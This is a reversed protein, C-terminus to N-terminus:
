SIPVRAERLAPSDAAAAPLAVFFTSGAGRASEAWVRGGHERIIERVLALGLGTGGSERRDSNDIRYLPDFIRELHETPIGIGNDRVSLVIEDGEQRATLVIEGDAAYKLANAVLREIVELLGKQEALIPALGPPVEVSLRDGGDSARFSKAAEELLERVPLAQFRFSSSRAQLRQMQLFDGILDNLREAQEALIRLCQRREEEAPENELLFEAYGLVATLPTRMEHSVASLIEDKLRDIEKRETIDLAIELRVLRGNPWRIAKDICQYWKNNATNRYEWILPAQASGDRKLQENACFDCPNHGDRIAEFCTKGLWGGGFIEEGFRNMYLLRHNEMDVVYVLASLSDFIASIQDFQTRLVAEERQRQLETAARVAFTRLLADAFDNCCNPRRGMVVLVGIVEDSSAVLPFACYSEVRKERLLLDGPFRAHAKEQVYCPRDPDLEDCPTGALPFEFDAALQGNDCYALTRLRDGTEGTREGIFVADVRLVRALHHVLTQFFATGRRGALAEVIERLATERQRLIRLYHRILLYLATGTLLVYVWGKVTQLTGAHVWGLVLASLLRDSFLIWAGGLVVYLLAIKAAIKVDPPLRNV